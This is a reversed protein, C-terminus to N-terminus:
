FLFCVNQVFYLNPLSFGWKLISQINEVSESPLKIKYDIVM